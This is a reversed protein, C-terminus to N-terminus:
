IRTKIYTVLEIEIDRFNDAPAGNGGPAYTVLIVLDGSSTLNTTKYNLPNTCNIKYIEFTRKVPNSKKNQPWKSVDIEHANSLGAHNISLIPQGYRKILFRSIAKGIGVAFTLGKNNKSICVAKQAMELQTDFVTSSTNIGWKKSHFPCMEIIFPKPPKQNSLLRELYPIRNSNQWWDYGPIDSCKLGDNNLLRLGTQDPNLYNFHQQWDSYKCLLFDNILTMKSKGANFYYKRDEITSSTGPNLNILVSDCDINGNNYQCSYPEPIEYYLLDTDKAKTPNIEIHKSFSSLDIPSVAPKASKGGNTYIRACDSKWHNLVIDWNDILQKMNNLNNQIYQEKWELMKEKSTNKFNLKEVRWTEMSIQEDLLKAGANYGSPQNKVFDYADKFWEQHSSAKLLKLAFANAYAEEKYYWYPDIHELARGDEGADMASHMLEHLITLVVVGEPHNERITVPSLQITNDKYSGLVEFVNITRPRSDDFPDAHSIDVQAGISENCKKINLWRKFFTTNDALVFGCRRHVDSDASKIIDFIEKATDEDFKFITHLNGRQLTDYEYKKDQEEFDHDYRLLSTEFTNEFAM